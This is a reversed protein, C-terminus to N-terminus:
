NKIFANRYAAMAALVYFLVDLVGFGEQLAAFAVSPTLHKIVEYVPVGMQSAALDCDTLLDGLVCGLLALVAGIYGFVPLHGKGASRMAWGVLFGVGVAAYGIKLHTAGVLMAWLVAGVLAAVLGAAVALGLNGTDQPATSYLDSPQQYPSPEIM